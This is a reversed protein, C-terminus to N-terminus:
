NTLENQRKMEDLYFEWKVFFEIYMRERKLGDSHYIFNLLSLFLVIALTSMLSVARATKQDIKLESYRNILFLLIAYFSFIYIVFRGVVVIISSYIFEFMSVAGTRILESSNNIWDLFTGYFIIVYSINILPLDFFLFILFYITSAAASQFFIISLRPTNEKESFFYYGLKGFLFAFFILGTLVSLFMSFRFVQFYPDIMVPYFPFESSGWLPSPFLKDM